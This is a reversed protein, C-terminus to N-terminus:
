SERESKLNEKIRSASYDKTQPPHKGKGRAKALYSIRYIVEQMMEYDDRTVNYFCNKPTFCFGAMHSWVEGAIDLTKQPYQVVRGDLFLAYHYHQASVDEQERAWCFGIRILKYTAKLRKKLRRIFETMRKNDLNYDRQHLDFRIVHVRNYHSLMNLFQDSFRRIMPLYIGTGDEYIQWIAGKHDLVPSYSVGM